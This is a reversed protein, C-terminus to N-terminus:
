KGVTEESLCLRESRKFALYSMSCSIVYSVLVLVPIPIGEIVDILWIAQKLLPLFFSTTYDTHVIRWTVKIPLCVLFTFTTLGYVMGRLPIWIYRVPFAGSRWIEGCEESRKRLTCFPSILVGEVIHAILLVISVTGQIDLVVEHNYILMWCVIVPAILVATWLHRNCEYDYGNRWLLYLEGIFFIPFLLRVLPIGGNRLLRLPSAIETPTPYDWSHDIALKDFMKRSFHQCNNEILDYKPNSILMSKLPSVLDSLRSTSLDIVKENIPKLRPKGQFYSLVAPLSKGQSLFIGEKQKDLVWWIDENTEAVVFAHYDITTYQRQMANRVSVGSSSFPANLPTSYVAVSTVTATEYDHSHARFIKEVNEATLKETRVLRDNNDCLLCMPQTKFTKFFEPVGSNPTFNRECSKIDMRTGVENFLGGRDTVTSHIVYPAWFVLHLLIIIVELTSEINITLNPGPAKKNPVPM